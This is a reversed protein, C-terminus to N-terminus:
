TQKRADLGGPHNPHIEIVASRVFGQNHQPCHQGIRHKTQTKSRTPGQNRHDTIALWSRQQGLIDLTGTNVIDRNGMVRKMSLWKDRVEWFWLLFSYKEFFFLRVKKRYNQSSAPNNMCTACGEFYQRVATPLSWNCDWAFQFSLFVHILKVTHKMCMDFYKLFLRSNLICDDFFLFKFM